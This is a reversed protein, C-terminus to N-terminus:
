RSMRHLTNSWQRTTRSLKNISGSLKNIRKEIDKKDQDDGMIYAAGIPIGTIGGAVAATKGVKNWKLKRDTGYFGKRKSTNSIPTTFFEKPNKLENLLNKNKLVLGGLGAASALAGVRFAKGANTTGIINDRLTRRKPEEQKKKRAFSAIHDSLFM